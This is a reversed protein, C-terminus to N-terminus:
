SANAMLARGDQLLQRAIDIDPSTISVRFGAPTSSVSIQVGNTLLPSAPPVASTGIVAYHAVQCQIVRGIWQETVGPTARISVVIGRLQKPALPKPFVSERVEDVSVIRDRRAFVGLDRDSDPVDTCAAQEAVRLRQAADMHEAATAGTTDQGSQAAREHDAATMQRFAASQAPACAAAALCMVFATVPKSKHNIRM